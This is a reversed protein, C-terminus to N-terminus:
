SFACKVIKGQVLEGLCKNCSICACNVKEIKKLWQDPLNPERILPRAFNSINNGGKKVADTCSVKILVPYDSGCSKKIGDVIEAIIRVRNKLSGGYKDKRKNTYSSLFTNLLFGHSGHIEAGDFGAKKVRVAAAIFKQILDNVDKLSM